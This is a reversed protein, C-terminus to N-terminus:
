ETLKGPDQIYSMATKKDSGMMVVANNYINRGTVGYAMCAIGIALVVLMIISFIRKKNM